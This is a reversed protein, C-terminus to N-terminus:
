GVETRWGQQPARLLVLGTRHRGASWATSGHLFRTQTERKCGLPEWEHLCGLRIWADMRRSVGKVFAMSPPSLLQQHTTPLM